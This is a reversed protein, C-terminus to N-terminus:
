TSTQRTWTVPEYRFACAINLHEFDSPVHAAGFELPDGLRVRGDVVEISQLEIPRGPGSNREQKTERKVLASINWRGDPQKAISFSPHVLRIRRVITGRQWLERLSYSLAVEDITIIDHGDRSLRIDGLQLGRLLSGELRGIQLTATLYENAQRVILGRIRDKAWGTELVSIGVGVLVLLIAVVYVVTKGVAAAITRLPPRRV